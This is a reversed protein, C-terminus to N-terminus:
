PASTYSTWCPSGWSARSLMRFYSFARLHDSVAISLVDDLYIIPVIGTQVMEPPYGELANSAIRSAVPKAATWLSFSDAATWTKAQALTPVLFIQTQEPDPKSILWMKTYASEAFGERLSVGKRYLRITTKYRLSDGMSTSTVAGLSFHSFGRKRLRDLIHMSWRNGLPEDFLVPVEPDALLPSQRRTPLSDDLLLSRILGEDLDAGAVERIRRTWTSIRLDQQVLYDRGNSAEASRWYLLGFLFWVALYSCAISTPLIIRTRRAWGIFGSIRGVATM